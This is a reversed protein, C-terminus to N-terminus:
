VNLQAENWKTKIQKLLKHKQYANHIIYIDKYNYEALLKYLKPRQIYHFKLIHIIISLRLSEKCGFFVDERSQNWYKFVRKLYRICCIISCTDLFIITDAHLIRENLTLSYNGDIIWEKKNILRNVKKIQEPVSIYEWNDTLLEMDLHYVTIGTIEGIKKSLTSKGSAINGIIIIKKFM